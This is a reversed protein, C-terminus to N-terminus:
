AHHPHNHTQGTVKDWAYHVSDKFNEWAGEIKDDIEWRNRLEPEVENWDRGRYKPDNAVAYGYRYGPEYYTYDKGTNTYYRDYHTRFDSDYTSFGNRYTDGAHTQGTIKDWAYHVSDKFNEWAGEAKHEIEWRRRLAPELDTWNRNEYRTDHAAVYGFRYAPEYYTYDNDTNTYYKSYHNRFDTQYASFGDQATIPEGPYPYTSVRTSQDTTSTSGYISRENEIKNITYPESEHEFRNWGEGRWSTARTDIDVPDFDELVDTANDVATDPVRALVLTGGRRVGEAYLHAEEEPIGWGVLAGVLGGAVAGIGAGALAAAIPGAAIIPGVGPIVLAGLGLLLGGIGGVVAGTMAGAAAGEGADVHDDYDRDLSEIHRKDADNAMLNIQDRTIGIDVLKEVARRADHLDDYLAVITKTM